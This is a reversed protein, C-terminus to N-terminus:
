IFCSRHEEAARRCTWFGAAAAARTNVTDGRREEAQAWTSGPLPEGAKHKWHLVEHKGWLWKIKIGIVSSTDKSQTGEGGGSLTHSHCTLACARSRGQDDSSWLTTGARSHDPTPPIPPKWAEQQRWWFLMLQHLFLLLSFFLSLSPWTAASALLALRPPSMLCAARWSSGTFHLGM